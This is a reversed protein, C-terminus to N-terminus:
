TKSLWARNASIRAKATAPLAEYCGPYQKLAHERIEKHQGNILFLYLVAGDPTNKTGMYKIM